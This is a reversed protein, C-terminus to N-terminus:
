HYLGGPIAALSKGLASGAPPAAQRGGGGAGQPQLGRVPLGAGLPGLPQQVQATPHREHPQERRGPPRTRGQGAM